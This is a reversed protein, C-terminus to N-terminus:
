GGGRAASWGRAWRFLAVGSVIYVVLGVAAAGQDGGGAYAVCAATFMGIIGGVFGAFVLWGLTNM